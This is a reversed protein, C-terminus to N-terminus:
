FAAFVYSTIAATFIRYNNTKIALGVKFHNIKCISFSLIKTFIRVKRSM